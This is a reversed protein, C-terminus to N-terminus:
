VSAPCVVRMLTFSTSRNLCPHRRTRRTGLRSKIVLRSTKAYCSSCPEQYLNLLGDALVEATMTM